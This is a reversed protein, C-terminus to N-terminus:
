RKQLDGLHVRFSVVPGYTASPQRTFRQVYSCPFERRGACTRHTYSGVYSSLRERNEASGARLLLVPLRPPLTCRGATGRVRQTYGGVYFSRSEWARSIGHSVPKVVFM